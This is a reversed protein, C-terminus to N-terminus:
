SYFDNMTQTQNSNLNTQFNMFCKSFLFAKREGLLRKPWFGPLGSEKEKEKGKKRKWCSAWELRGSHGLGSSAFGTNTGGHAGRKARDTAAKRWRSSGHQEGDRTTCQRRWGVSGRGLRLALPSWGFALNQIMVFENRERELHQSYDNLFPDFQLYFQGQLGETDRRVKGRYLSWGSPAKLCWFWAVMALSRQQQRAMASSSGM